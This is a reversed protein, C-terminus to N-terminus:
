DKLVIDQEGRKSDFKHPEDDMFVPINLEEQLYEGIKIAQRRLTPHVFRTSRLEAMYVMAPVHGVIRNSTNFGMPTYYQKVESPADLNAIRDEISGLFDVAKQRQAEPLNDLYWDNFGLETTLLPMRQDIARHRQVDRFSGFDLLFEAVVEGVQNMYQPLETKANPRADLLKRFDELEDEEVSNDLYMDDCEPDHYYYNEAILKQYEETEIYRKEQFSSPYKEIMVAEITEGINRVEELPHNRLFTLKDRMQRLNSHWALKTTAGAPLFGRTIDFGRATIAKTYAAEKQKSSLDTESPPFLEKLYAVVPDKVSVYFARQDELIANGEESLLPNAFPQKAFDIYRTSAEQGNYLKNDQIAKAAPMSVGEIFLTTTGCDGISKHGYGVYYSSMFKEPGKDALVSLHGELGELSRSHLAQIMAESEADILAGTDLAYVVGGGPIHKKIHNLDNLTSM